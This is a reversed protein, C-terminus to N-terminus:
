MVALPRLQLLLVRSLALHLLIRVVAGKRVGLVVGVKARVVVLEVLQGAHLRREALDNKLREFRNVQNCAALAFLAPPVEAALFDARVCVDADHATPMDDRQYDCEHLDREREHQQIRRPIVKVLHVSLIVRQHTAPVAVECVLNRDEAHREHVQRM